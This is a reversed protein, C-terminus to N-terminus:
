LKPGWACDLRPKSVHDKSPSGNKLLSLCFTYTFAPHSAPREIALSACLVLLPGSPRCLSPQCGDRGGVLCDLVILISPGDLWWVFGGARKVSAVRSPAAISFFPFRPVLSLSSSSSSNARLSHAFFFFFFSFCFFFFFFFFFFFRLFSDARRLGRRLCEFAQYKSFDDQAVLSSNGAWPWPNEGQDSTRPAISWGRPKEYGLRNQLTVSHSDSTFILCFTFLCSQLTPPTLKM